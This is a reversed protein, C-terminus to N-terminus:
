RHGCARWPLSKWDNNVVESAARTVATTTSFDCVLLSHLGGLHTRLQEALKTIVRSWGERPAGPRLSDDRVELEIAAERGLKRQLLAPFTLLHRAAGQAVCLWVDDPALVLPYHEAYAIHAAMVLGHYPACAVLPPAGSCAELAELGREQLARALAVTPKM